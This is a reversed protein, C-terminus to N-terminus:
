NLSSINSNKRRILDDIYKEGFRCYVIKNTEKANIIYDSMNPFAEDRPVTDVKPESNM